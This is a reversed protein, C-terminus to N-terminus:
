STEKIPFDGVGNCEQCIISALSHIPRIAGVGNCVSCDVRELKKLENFIGEFSMPKGDKLIKKDKDFSQTFTNM